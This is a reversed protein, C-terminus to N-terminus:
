KACALKWLGTAKNAELVPEWDTAGPESAVAEGTAMPGSHFLLTFLRLRGQKCDIETQIRVSRYKQGDGGTQLAQYDYLTWVRASDGSKVVSSPDLYVTFRDEKSEVVWAAHVACSWITLLMASLFTKFMSPRLQTPPPALTPGVLDSPPPPLPSTAAQRFGM